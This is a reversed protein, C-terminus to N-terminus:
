SWLSSPSSPEPMDSPPLLPLMTMARQDLTSSLRSFVNTSCCPSCHSTIAIHMFFRVSMCHWCRHFLTTLGLRM